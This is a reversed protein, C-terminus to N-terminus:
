RTKKSDKAMQSALNIAVDQLMDCNEWKKLFEMFCTKRGREDWKDKAIGHEIYEKIEDYIRESKCSM